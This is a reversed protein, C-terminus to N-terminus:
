RNNATHLEHNLDKTLFSNFKEIKFESNKMAQSIKYLVEKHSLRRKKSFHIEVLIDLCRLMQEFSEKHFWRFEGFTNIQLYDKALDQDLFEIFQSLIRKDSHFIYLMRMQLAIASQRFNNLPWPYKEMKEAILEDIQLEFFWDEGFDLSLVRELPWLLLTIILYIREELAFLDYNSEILKVLMKGSNTALKNDANKKLSIFIKGYFAELHFVFEPLIDSEPTGRKWLFDIQRIFEISILPELASWIHDYEIRKLLKDIDKCGNKGLKEALIQYRGDEDKVERVQWFVHYQFAKLDFELGVAHIDASNRLYTLGSIADQFIAYFMRDDSLNWQEALNTEQWIVADETKEAKAAKNVWGSTARYINHFVVLTNQDNFRNGYAFVNEDISGTSQYFDYLIFDTVDSFLFRNRLLPFIEKEHREVFNNDPTEWLYPRSFEMGYRESFGEIQGHAFMPLGPMTSMLVCIGFYKDGKGFQDIATDEDPNSMFNVFRKLIQPDFSLVNKISARYKDNEELKLMNMFASNYVRHMGLTRVFYGEMMWFAEALLLTDPNEEAVRDVVQRWFEEPMLRDFEERSMSFRSRTPIAGGKGPEPFWLRQIHRKALTMAADFRIIPFKHAIKRIEQCIADRVESKLYNLQATDNWPISTGDNGHYIYRSIGRRRDFLKYVVAADSEDYYHDELYIEIEDRDSINQGNFSYSPFPPERLQLFWDPHDVIWDSDIGFHNPVMDCGIRLGASWARKQLKRMATEGGLASSIQYNKISYASAIADQNGKIQKFRASATSREWIGILWLGSFGRSAIEQLESDPIEDLKAIPREYKRSLQALWVFTSKALLVLKSMWDKDQSFREFESDTFQYVKTPGAGGGRFTREEQLIDLGKLIEYFYDDLLEAFIKKIFQLQLSISDPYKEAISKLLEIINKQHSISPYRALVKGTQSTIIQFVHPYESSELVPKLNEFAKNQMCLHLVIAELMWDTDILRYSDELYNKIKKTDEALTRSIKQQIETWAPKAKNQFYNQLIHRYISAILSLGNLDGASIGTIKAAQLRGYIFHLEDFNAPAITAHESLIDQLQNKNIFDKHAPIGKRKLLVM